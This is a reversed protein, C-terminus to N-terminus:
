ATLTVKMGDWALIVNKHIKKAEKILKLVDSGRYRASIHTLILLHVGSDRAVLAADLATSHGREHAKEALASDFTSDHILVRSGKIFPILEKCPATDGTYSISVERSRESVQTLDIVRKGIVIRGEVLLLKKITEPTPVIGLEKMRDVRLRPRLKWVLKFMYGEITHCSPRWYLTLSDGGISYLELFGEGRIEVVKIPFTFPIREVELVEKIFESSWRDCVITLPKTRKSMYLTQLLGPLGNIHDGHSHTIAILNISTLSVGLKLMRYQTGEGVDFLTKYGNWDKILISPLAREPTPVGGSTGLFLIEINRM